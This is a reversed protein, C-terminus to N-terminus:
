EDDDEWTRAIGEFEQDVAAEDLVYQIPEGARRRQVMADVAAVHRRSPITEALGLLDAGDRGSAAECVWLAEQAATPLGAAALQDRVERQLSAWTLPDPSM